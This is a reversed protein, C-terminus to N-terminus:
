FVRDGARMAGAVPLLAVACRAVTRLACWDSHTLLTFSVRPRPPIDDCAFVLEHLLSRNSFVGKDICREDELIRFEDVSEEMGVALKIFRAPKKGTETAFSNTDKM